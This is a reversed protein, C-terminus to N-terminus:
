NVVRIDELRQDSQRTDVVTAIDAMSEKRLLRKIQMASVVRPSTYAGSRVFSFETDRPIQFNVWKEHCNITAFQSALWDMGLIIDFDHIDIVILDAPLDRGVIQIPCTKCVQNGIMGSGALTSVHLDYELQVYPLDHKQVFTSSVFFHTASSDFLTHAYISAVPLTGSVVTNSAQADQQTLAYIRGQTHPRGGKQQKPSPQASKHGQQGCRFCAGSLRRCHETKHMGGCADGKHKEQQITKGYSGQKGSQWSQNHSKATKSSNQGSRADYDRSRKKQKRDKADYTEKWVIELNKARSLRDFEAEYYEDVTMTGQNLNLFERELERLRSSPFYKSYFATRFRQWTLAEQEPALTREVFM